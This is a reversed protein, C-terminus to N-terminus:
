TDASGTDQLRRGNKQCLRTKAAAGVLAGWDRCPLNVLWFESVFIILLNFTLLRTGFQNKDITVHILILMFCNSIGSNQYYYAWVFPSPGTLPPSM